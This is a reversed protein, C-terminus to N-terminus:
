KLRRTPTEGLRNRLDALIAYLAALRELFSPRSHGLIGDPDPFELSEGGRRLQRHVPVTEQTM